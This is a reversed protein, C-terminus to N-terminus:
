NPPWVLLTGRQIAMLTIAFLELKILRLPATRQEREFKKLLLTAWRTKKPQGAMTNLPGIKLNLLLFPGHQTVGTMLPPNSKTFGPLIMLMNMM